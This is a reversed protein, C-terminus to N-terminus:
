KLWYHLCYIEIRVLCKQKKKCPLKNYLNHMSICLLVDLSDPPTINIKRFPQTIRYKSIETACGFINDFKQWCCRCTVNDQIVDGHAVGCFLYLLLEHQRQKHPTIERLHPLFGVVLLCHFITSQATVGLSLWGTCVCTWFWFHKSPASVSSLWKCLFVMCTTIYALILFVVSSFKPKLKVKSLVDFLMKQNTNAHFHFMNCNQKLGAVAIYLLMDLTLMLLDTDFNYVLRIGM